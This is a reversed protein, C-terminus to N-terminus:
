EEVYARTIVKKYKESKLIENFNMSMSVFLVCLLYVIISNGIVGIFRNVANQVFLGLMMSNMQIGRCNRPLEVENEGVGYDIGYVEDLNQLFACWKELEASM